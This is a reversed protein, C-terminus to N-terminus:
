RIIGILKKIVMKYVDEQIVGIKKEILSNHLTFLKGGKIVSDVALNNQSNKQVIVDHTTKTQINSSIFCCLNDDQLKGLVLAPRLKAESLDTFPIRVLIIDRKQM